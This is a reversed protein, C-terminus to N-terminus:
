DVQEVNVTIRILDMKGVFDTSSKEAPWEIVFDFTETKGSEIVISELIKYDVGNKISDIPELPLNETLNEIKVVCKIAVEGNNKIQIQTNQQEGPALSTPIIQAQASLDQDFAFKAVRADDNGENGSTYRAYLGGIAYASLLVACLLLLAIHMTSFLPAKNNSKSFKM